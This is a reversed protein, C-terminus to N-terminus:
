KPHHLIFNRYIENGTYLYFERGRRYLLIHFIFIVSLISTVEWFLYKGGKVFPFIFLNIFLLISLNRYFGFRSLFVMYSTEINEQALYTKAVQYYDTRIDTLGYKDIIIQKVKPYYIEHQEKSLTVLTKFVPKWEYIKLLVRFFLSIPEFIIGITYILIGYM